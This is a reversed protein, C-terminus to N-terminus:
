TSSISRALIFTLALWFLQSPFTQKEFPPFERGQGSAPHEITKIQQVNNQAMTGDRRHVALTTGGATKALRWIESAFRLLLAIVRKQTTIRGHSKRCFYRVEVLVGSPLSCFPPHCQAPRPPALVRDFRAGLESRTDTADRSGFALAFGNAIADTETYGPTHFSRHEGPEVALEGGM